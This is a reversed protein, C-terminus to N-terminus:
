GNPAYSTPVPLSPGDYLLSHDSGLMTVYFGGNFDTTAYMATRLRVKLHDTGLGTLEVEYNHEDASFPGFM